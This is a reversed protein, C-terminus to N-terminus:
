RNDRACLPRTLYFLPYRHRCAFKLCPSHVYGVLKFSTNRVSEFTYKKDLENFLIVRNLFIDQKKDAKVNGSRIIRLLEPHTIEMRELKVDIPVSFFILPHYDLPM